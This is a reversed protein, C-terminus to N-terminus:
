CHQPLPSIKYFQCLFHLVVYNVLKNTLFKFENIFLQLANETETQSSTFLGTEIEDATARQYFWDLFAGGTTGDGNGFKDDYDSAVQKLEVYSWHSSGGAVGM